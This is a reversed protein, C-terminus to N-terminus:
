VFVSKGIIKIVVLIKNNIRTFIMVFFLPINYLQLYLLGNCLAYIFYPMHIKSIEMCFAVMHIDVAYM